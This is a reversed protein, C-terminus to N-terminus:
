LSRYNMEPSFIPAIEYETISNVDYWERENLNYLSFDSKLQLWNNKTYTVNRLIKFKTNRPLIFESEFNADGLQNVVDISPLQNSDRIIYLATSDSMFHSSMAYEVDSSTSLFASDQILGDKTCVFRNDLVRYLTSPTNNQMLNDLIEVEESVQGVRIRQNLSTGNVLGAASVYNQPTQKELDTM